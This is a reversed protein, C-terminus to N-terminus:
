PAAQDPKVPKDDPEGGTPKLQKGGPLKLEPLSIKPLDKPLKLEPLKPLEGGPTAAADLAAPLDKLQPLDKLLVEPLDRLDPVPLPQLGCGIGISKVLKAAALDNSDADLAVMINVSGKLAKRSIKPAVESLEKGFPADQLHVRAAAAVIADCPLPGQLTAQWHTQIGDREVNAKGKMRLAGTEFNLKVVEFKTYARNSSLTGWLHPSTDYVLGALERPVPFNLGALTFDFTGKPQAPNLGYPIDLKMSGSATTTALESPVNNFLIGSFLLFPVGALELQVHGVSNAPDVDAVLSNAPMSRVRLEVHAKDGFRVSGDLIDALALTGTWDEKESLRQLDSIALTPPAAEDTVWALRNRQGTVAISEGKDFHGKWQDFDPAGAVTVDAGSVFVREPQNDRLRVDLHAITGSASTPPPVKVTCHELTVKTVELGNREFELECDSLEVGWQAAAEAVKSMVYSPLWANFAVVGVGGAVVLGGIGLFLAKVGRRKTTKTETVEPFYM